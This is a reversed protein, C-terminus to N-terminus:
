FPPEEAQGGGSAWPDADAPAGSSRSVQGEGHKITRFQLSAAVADAILATQSRKEGSDTTWEDTQLRGTCVVLDGKGLSEAVHEALQKFSTVNIWLTRDDVWEGADNKKRSSAVLRFKAVATGSPAFRLEPDAVMRGEITVHPLSM